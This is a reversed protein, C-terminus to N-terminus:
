MMTAQQIIRQLEEQSIMPAGDEGHDGHPDVPPPPEEGEEGPPPPPADQFSEVNVRVKDAVHPMVVYITEDGERRLYFRGEEPGTASVFLVIATTGDQTPETPQAPDDAAPPV